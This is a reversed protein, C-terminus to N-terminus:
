GNDTNGAKKTLFDCLRSGWGYKEMAVVPQAGLIHYPLNSTYSRLRSWCIMYYVVSGAAFAFGYFRSDLYTSAISGVTTVIAFVAAAVSAGKYDMFYMLILM